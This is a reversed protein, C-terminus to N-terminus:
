PSRRPGGCSLPPRRPGALEGPREGKPRANGGGGASQPTPGRYPGESRDGLSRGRKSSSRAGPKDGSNGWIQREWRFRLASPEAVFGCRGFGVAARTSGPSGPNPRPPPATWWAAFGHSRRGPSCRGFCPRIAGSSRATRPLTSSFGVRRSATAAFRPSRRRRSGSASRRDARPDWTRFATGSRSSSSSETSTDRMGVDVSGGDRATPRTPLEFLAIRGAAHALELVFEQAALHGADAPEPPTSLDRSFRVAFPRDLAAGLAFWTRLPATAGEGAELEQLRSRGIGARAGLEDLTLHRRLRTRKLDVGLAAAARRAEVDGALEDQRRRRVVVRHDDSM